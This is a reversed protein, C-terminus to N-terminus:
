DLLVPFVLLVWKVKEVLHGMEALLVLLVLLALKVKPVLNEEEVQLGMLDVPDQHVLKVRLDQAELSDLQVLHVPLALHDLLDLLVMTEVPVQLALVVLVDEKELQVEQVRQALYAMTEQVALKERLALLVLTVKPVMEDM